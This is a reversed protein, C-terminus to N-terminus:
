RATAPPSTPAGSRHGEHRADAFRSGLQCRCGGQSCWGGDKGRQGKQQRHKLGVGRSGVNVRAQGESVSTTVDTPQVLEFSSYEMPSSLDIQRQFTSPSAWFSSPLSSSVKEVHM